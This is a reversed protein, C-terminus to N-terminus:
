GMGMFTMMGFVMGNKDQNKRKRRRRISAQTHFFSEIEKKSSVKEEAEV